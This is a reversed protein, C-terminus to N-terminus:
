VAGLITGTQDFQLEIYKGFRRVARCIACSVCRLIVRTRTPQELHVGFPLAFDSLIIFTPQYLAQMSQPLM